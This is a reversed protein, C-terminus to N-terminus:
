EPCKQIFRPDVGVLRIGSGEAKEIVQEFTNTTPSPLPGGDRDGGVIRLRLRVEGPGVSAAELVESLVTTTVGGEASVITYIPPDGSPQAFVVRLGPKSRDAGATCYSAWTGILGLSEIAAAASATRAAASSALGALVVLCLIKGM